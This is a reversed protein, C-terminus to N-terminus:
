NVKPAIFHWLIKTTNLESIFLPGNCILILILHFKCIKFCIQCFGLTM